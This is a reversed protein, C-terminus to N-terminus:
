FVGFTDFKPYDKSKIPTKLIDPPVDPVKKKLVDNSLYSNTASIVARLIESKRIGGVSFSRLYTYTSISEPELRAISDGFGQPIVLLLYTDSKKAAEVAAEPSQGQVGDIKFNASQLSGVLGRSLESQDLDMVSINQTAAAKKMETKALNGIFYFIAMMMVLSVILQKNVLEKIEKILLNTFKKM